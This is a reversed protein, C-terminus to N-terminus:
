NSALHEGRPTRFLLRLSHRNLWLLAMELGFVLYGLWAGHLPSLFVHFVLIALTIPILALVGLQGLAGFLLLVGASAEVLKFLTWFIGSEKLTRIFAEGEVSYHLDPFFGVLGNLGSITFITGLVLRLVFLYRHPRVKTSVNQM